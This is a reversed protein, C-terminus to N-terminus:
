RELLLAGNQVRVSQIARTQQIENLASLLQNLTPETQDKFSRLAVPDLPKGAGTVRLVNVTIKEDSIIPRLFVEYNLYKTVFPVFHLPVRLRLEAENERFVVNAGKQLFGLEPAEALMANVDAESLSVSRIEASQLFDNLKRRAQQYAGPTIASHTVALPQDSSITYLSWAFRVSFFAVAAVVVLLFTAGLCGVMGCCGCGGQRRTDYAM